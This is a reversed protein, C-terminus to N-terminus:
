KRKSGEQIGTFFSVRYYKPGLMYSNWSTSAPFLFRPYILTTPYNSSFSSGANFSIMSNHQVIVSSNHKNEFRLLGDVIINIKNAFLFQDRLTISSLTLIAGTQIIICNVNLNFVNELVEISVQTGPSISVDCGGIVFCAENKPVLGSSWIRHDYFSGSEIAIFTLRDFIDVAGSECFYATKPPTTKPNLTFGTNLPMDTFTRKYICISTIPGIFKSFELFSIASNEILNLESIDSGLELIGTSRIIIHCRNRLTFTNNRNNDIKLIGSVTISVMDYDFVATDILLSVGFNVHVSFKDAPVIGDKWVSSDTFLGSNVAIFLVPAPSIAPTPESVSFLIFYKFLFIIDM